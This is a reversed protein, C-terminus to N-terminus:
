AMRSPGMSGSPCLRYLWVFILRDMSTLRLRRPAARRPVNLHNADTKTDNSLDPPRSSASTTSRRCRSALLTTRDAHLQIARKQARAVTVDATSSFCTEASFAKGAALRRAQQFPPASDPAKETGPPSAHLDPHRNSCRYSSNSASALEITRVRM